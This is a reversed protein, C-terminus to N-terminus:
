VRPKDQHVAGDTRQKGGRGQLRPPDIFQPSPHAIQADAVLAGQDERFGLAGRGVGIQLADGHSPPRVARQRDAAQTGTGDAAIALMDGGHQDGGVALLLHGGLGARRRHGLGRRWGFGAVPLQGVIQRAPQGSQLRIIALVGLFIRGGDMLAQMVHERGGLRVLLARAAGRRQHHAREGHAQEEGALDAMGFLEGHVLASGGRAIQTGGVPDDQRPQATGDGIAEAADLILVRGLCEAADDGSAAGEPAGGVAGPYRFAFWAWSTHRPLDRRIPRLLRAQHQLFPQHGEVGRQKPIHVWPRARDARDREVDRRPRRCPQKARRRHRWFQRRAHGLFQALTQGRQFHRHRAGQRHRFPEAAPCHRIQPQDVARQRDIGRVPAAGRPMDPATQIFHRQGAQGEAITRQRHGTRDARRRAPHRMVAFEVIQRAVAGALLFRDLGQGKQAHAADRLQRRNIILVGMGLIERQPLARAGGGPQRDHKLGNGRQAGLAPLDIDIVIERDADDGGVASQGGFQLFVFAAADVPQFQMEADLDVALADIQHGGQHAQDGFGIGGQRQLALVVGGEQQRQGVPAHQGQRKAADAGGQAGQDLQVGGATQAHVPLPDAEGAQVGGVERLQLFAGTQFQFAALGQAGKAALQALRAAGNGLRDNRFGEEARQAFVLRAADIPQLEEAGGTEAADEGVVHSQALGHLGQRM